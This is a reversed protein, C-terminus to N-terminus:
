YRATVGAVVIQVDDFNFGYEAVLDFHRGLTTSVGLTPNWPHRPGQDAEFDVTGLEPVEVTSRATNDTDWYNAGLWVRLPVTDVKGNWGARASGVLASFRDAFGIDTQSYNADVTLFFDRYGTALTVGGGAVVGDLGTEVTFEYERTRPRPFETTLTVVGHSTSENNLYGALLYIDLFPLLWADLRAIAANVRSNSGLDLFRSVSQEPGGNVALRVDDVRIDRALYNYIMGFGFPAPLEYGRKKAEEAMFPLFSTWREDPAPEPPAPTPVADAAVSATAGAESALPLEGIGHGGQARAATASGVGLLLALAAVRLRRRSGPRPRMSPTLLPTPRRM